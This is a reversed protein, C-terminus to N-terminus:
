PMEGTTLYHYSIIFCVHFWNDLVSEQYIPARPLTYQFIYKKNM